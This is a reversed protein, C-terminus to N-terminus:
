KKSKGRKPANGEGVEDGEPTEPKLANMLAAVGQFLDAMEDDDIRQTALWDYSVWERKPLRRTFLCFARMMFQLGGVKGEDHATMLDFWEVQAGFPLDGTLPIDLELVRVTEVDQRPIINSNRLKIPV